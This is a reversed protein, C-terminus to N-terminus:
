TKEKERLFEWSANKGSLVFSVILASQPIKSLHKRKKYNYQISQLSFVLIFLFSKISNPVGADSIKRM